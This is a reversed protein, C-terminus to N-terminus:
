WPGYGEESGFDVRVGDVEHSEVAGTAENLIATIRLHFSGGIGFPEDKQQILLQNGSQVFEKTRMQFLVSGRFVADIGVAIREKDARWVDSVSAVEPQPELNQLHQSHFEDSLYPILRGLDPYWRVHEDITRHLAEASAALFGDLSFAKFQGQGIERHIAELKELNPKVEKDVFSQLGNFLRVQVYPKSRSRCDDQLELFLEPEKGFDKSNRTVLAMPENDRLSPIVEKMLSEWLVADRFGRQGNNDFPRRRGLSRAILDPLQVNGYTIVSGGLEGIQMDLYRRFDDVTKAQDITPPPYAKSEGLMRGIDRLSTSATEASEALKERYHNITEEVVIQPIALRSRTRSLYAKLMRFNPGELRLDAFTETTDLVVIM